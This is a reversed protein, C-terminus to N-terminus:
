VTVPCTWDRLVLLVIFVWQWIKTINYQSLDLSILSTINWRQFLDEKVELKTNGIVCLAMLPSQFTGKINTVDSFLDTCTANDGNCQRVSPCLIQSNVQVATVIVMVFQEIM